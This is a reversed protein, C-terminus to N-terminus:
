EYTLVVVGQRSDVAPNAPPLAQYRATFPTESHSCANNLTSIDLSVQPSVSIVRGLGQMHTATNAECSAQVISGRFRISGNESYATEPMVVAVIFMALLAHKTKNIYATHFRPWPSVKTKM